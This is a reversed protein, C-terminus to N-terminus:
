EVKERRPLPGWPLGYKDACIPGYGVTVSADATLALGCFCCWGHRLGHDRSAFVPDADYEILTQLESEQFRQGSRETLIGDAALRGIMTWKEDDIERRCVRSPAKGFIGIRHRDDVVLKIMPDRSAAATAIMEAVRALKGVVSDAGPAETAAGTARLVLEHMWWRQEPTGRKARAQQMLSGSFDSRPIRGALHLEIFKAFMEDDSLTVSIKKGRRNVLERM